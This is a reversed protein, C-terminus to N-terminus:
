NDAEDPNRVKYFADAHEVMPRDPLFHTLDLECDGQQVLQAILKGVYPSLVVSSRFASALVLGEIGDVPGFFPCGDDTFTTPAMWARIVNVNKLMPFYRLTIMAMAAPAVPSIQSSLSSGPRNAQSILFQGEITQRLSLITMEADYRSTVPVEIHKESVIVHQLKPGLVRETVMESARFSHVRWDRGLLRGLPRTWAATALVVAPAYFDGQPTQVGQIRGGEMLFGTVPTHIQV